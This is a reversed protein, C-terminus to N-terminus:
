TGDTSRVLFQKMGERIESYLKHQPSSAEIRKMEWGNAALKENTAKAWYRFLTGDQELIVGNIIGWVIRVKRIWVRRCWPFLDIGDHVAKVIGVYRNIEMPLIPTVGFKTVYRIGADYKPGASPIPDCVVIMLDENDLINDMNVFMTTNV